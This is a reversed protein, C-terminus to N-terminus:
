EANQNSFKIKEEAFHHPRGRRSQPDAGEIPLPKKRVLVVLVERTGPSNTWYYIESINSYFNSSLIREIHTDDVLLIDLIYELFRQL